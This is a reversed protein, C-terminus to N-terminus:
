AILFIFIFVEKLDDDIGVSIIKKSYEKEIEASPIIRADKKRCTSFKMDFEKFKEFMESHKSVNGRHYMPKLCKTLFDSHIKQEPIIVKPPSYHALTEPLNAILINGGQDNVVIEGKSTLYKVTAYNTNNSKTKTDTNHETKKVRAKPLIWDAHCPCMWKRRIKLQRFTNLLPSGLACETLENMLAATIETEPDVVIPSHPLQRYLPHKSGSWLQSKIWSIESVDLIEADDEILEPPISALPRPIICDIHWYLECYDCKIMESRQKQITPFTQKVTNSLLFSTQSLDFGSKGCQHCSGTDSDSISKLQSGLGSIQENSVLPADYIASSRITSKSRTKSARTVIVDRIDMYGGTVPHAFVHEFEEWISRPLEFMKPNVAKLSDLLEGFLGESQAEKPAQKATCENCNWSGEPPRLFGESVCGFHFIRPCSDCCLM